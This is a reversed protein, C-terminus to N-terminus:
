SKLLKKIKKINFNSFLSIKKNEDYNNKKFIISKLMIKLFNKKSSINYNNFKHSKFRSNLNYSLIFKKQDAKFSFVLEGLKKKIIKLEDIKKTKLIKYLYTFDHYCLRELINKKDTSHKTRIIYNIKKLKLKNKKYNEIDSVYLKCNNLKAIKYLEIDKDVKNTLPKECFVNKRKLLFKKVIKYHNETNTTVIVWDIFNFNIKKKDKRNKIIYINNIEKIERLSRFVKKGWQGYGILCINKM